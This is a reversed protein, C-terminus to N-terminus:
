ECACGFPKRAKRYASGPNFGAKVQSGLVRSRMVRSPSAPLLGLVGEDNRFRRASVWLGRELFTQLEVRGRVTEGEVWERGVDAPSRAEEQSAGEKTVADQSAVASFVRSADLRNRGGLRVAHVRVEDHERSRAGSECRPNRV